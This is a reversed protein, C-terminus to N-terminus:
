NSSIGFKCDLFEEETESDMKHRVIKCHVDNVQSGHMGLFQNQVNVFVLALSSAEIMCNRDTCNCNPHLRLTLSMNVKAMFFEFVYPTAAASTMPMPKEIPNYPFIRPPKLGCHVQPTIATKATIM